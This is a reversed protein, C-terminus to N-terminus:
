DYTASFLVGLAAVGWKPPNDAGADNDAMRGLFIQGAVGLGWNPSVWWEKGILTNMGLGIESEGVSDGNEDAATLRSFALTGSLYLNGPFYYAVGPGMGSVRASGDSMVSVGGIEVDPRSAISAFLEGFVIVSPTLAGGLAFSLTAGNGTISMDGFPTETTMTTHSPGVLMRLFMGEHTQYGPRASPDPGPYYSGSPQAGPGQAWAPACLTLLTVFVVGVITRRQRM